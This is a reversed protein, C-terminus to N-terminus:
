GRTGCRRSSADPNTHQASEAPVLAAGASPCFRESDPITPAIFNSSTAICSGPDEESQGQSAESGIEERQRKERVNLRIQELDFDRSDDM